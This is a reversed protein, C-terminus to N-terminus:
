QVRRATSGVQRTLRQRLAFQSAADDDCVPVRM